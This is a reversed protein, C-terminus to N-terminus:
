HTILIQKRMIENDTTFVAIYLGPKVQGSVLTNSALRNIQCQRGDILFLDSLLVSEPLPIPEGIRFVSPISKFAAPYDHISIPLDIIECIENGLPKNDVGGNPSTVSLCIKYQSPVPLVLTDTISLNIEKSEFPAITDHILYSFRPATCGTDVTSVWNVFYSRLTDTSHNSVTTTVKFEPNLLGQQTFNPVIEDVRLSDVGIDWFNPKSLTDLDAMGLFDYPIASNAKMLFYAKNHEIIVDVLQNSTDGLEISKEVFYQNNLRALIWQDNKFGSLYLTDADWHGSHLSDFTNELFTWPHSYRTTGNSKLVSFSQRGLALFNISSGKIPSIFIPHLNLNYSFALVMEWNYVKFISDSVVAFSTDDLRGAIMLNNHDRSKYKANQQSYDYIVLVDDSAMIYSNQNLKTAQTMAATITKASLKIRNTRSVKNLATDLNYLYNGTARSLCSSEHALLLDAADEAILLNGSYVEGKDTISRDFAISDGLLRYRIIPKTKALYGNQFRGYVLM